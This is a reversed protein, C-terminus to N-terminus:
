GWRIRRHDVPGVEGGQVVEEDEGLPGVRHPPGLVGVHHHVLGLVDGGEVQEAQAVQLLAGAKGEQPVQGLADVGM